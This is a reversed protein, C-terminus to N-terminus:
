VQGLMKVWAPRVFVSLDYSARIITPRFCGVIITAVSYLGDSVVLIVLIRNWLAAASFICHAPM